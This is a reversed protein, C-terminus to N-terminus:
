FEENSVELNIYSTQKKADKREWNLITHYDSKYKKGSSHKYNSLNEIKADFQGGLKDKLKDIEAQTMKVNDRLLIDKLPLPRNTPPLIEPKEIVVEKRKEELRIKDIRIKDPRLTEPTAGSDNRFQEPTTGSYLIVAGESTMKKKIEKVHANKSVTEDLMKALCTAKLRGSDALEFLGLEICRHMIKAVKITDMKFEHAILEADDELEFTLNDIAISGAILEMCLWYLGYGGMGFEMILRRLGARRNTEHKFWKM